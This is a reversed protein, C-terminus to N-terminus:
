DHNFLFSIRNVYRPFYCHSNIIKAFVMESYMDLISQNSQLFQPAVKTPDVECDDGSEILSKVFETM